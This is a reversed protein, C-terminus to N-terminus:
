HCSRIRAMSRKNEYGLVLREDSHESVLCKGVRAKVHDFRSM